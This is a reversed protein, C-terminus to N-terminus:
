GDGQGESLKSSTLCLTSAEGWVTLSLVCQEPGVQSRLCLFRRAQHGQDWARAGGGQPCRIKGGRGGSARGLLDSVRTGGQSM